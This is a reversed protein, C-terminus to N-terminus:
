DEEAKEDLEEGSDPRREVYWVVAALVALVVLAFTM